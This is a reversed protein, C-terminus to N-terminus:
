FDWKRHINFGFFLDNTEAGLMLRRTGIQSNNGVLLIFHHGYTEFKLGAAFSNESGNIIIDRQVVPFYEGIISMKRIPRLSIDFGIDVGIGFGFRENYGDYGINAVPTITNLIPESQLSLGYFFNRRREEIGQIEYTFFQIDIQTKMFVQPFYYAYSAGIIYEKQIRTYSVNVELKPLIAYRIGLGINAGLDLGFFTNFPEETIKGYFRHRIIFVSETNELTSPVKLNLMDPEFSFLKHAALIILFALNTKRM